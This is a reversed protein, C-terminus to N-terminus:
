LAQAEMAQQQALELKGAAINDRASKLLELAATRTQQAGKMANENPAAATIIQTNTKRELDALLHEPHEELLTRNVDMLQAQMALQRAETMRGSAMAAKAAAM